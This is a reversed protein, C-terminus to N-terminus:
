KANQRDRELAVRAISLKYKDVRDFQDQARTSLATFDMGALRSDFEAIVDLSRWLSDKGLIGLSLTELAEFTSLGDPQHHSLKVRSAKEGLWAM